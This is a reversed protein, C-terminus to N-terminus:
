KNVRTDFGPAGFPEEGYKSVLFEQWADRISARQVASLSIWRVPVLMRLDPMPIDLPLSEVICAGVCAYLRVEHTKACSAVVLTTEVGLKWCSFQPIFKLM